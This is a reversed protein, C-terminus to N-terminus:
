IKEVLVIDNDEVKLVKIAAGTEIKEKETIADLEHFAGNISVQVKGKGTKREPISLYVSGTKDITDKIKFSNDESLRNIQIMLYFFLAIFQIGIIIAICILLFHNNIMNYFSIGTWSFGLSFNILNRLTFVHFAMGDGGADTHMDTASSDHSDMGIFTMISQIIFILSAPLAVYWFIRLLPEMSEFFEM